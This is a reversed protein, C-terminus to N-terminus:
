LGKAPSNPRGRRAQGIKTKLKREIKERFDDNGLPTGTQWAAHISKLLEDDIHSKFLSKYNKCRLVRTKGMVTYLAHETVIDGKKGQANYRYSSWRYYSPSRVMNARVPNLEIYRMCILLYQEDSILSAKYRGEWISGSTGYTYNIYPVYRRGIYQMMRSVGQKDRPTALIHIHNNMLVYAHIDCDYREAAEKLWGLYAQYDSDEFFVPERSHGRQVIHVPVDPLFFRPKRPM